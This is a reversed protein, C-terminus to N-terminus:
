LHTLLECLSDVTAHDAGEGQLRRTLFLLVGMRIGREVSTDAAFARLYPEYVHGYGTRLLRARQLVPLRNFAPVGLESPLKSLLYDMRLEHLDDSLCSFNLMLRELLQILAADSAITRLPAHNCLQLLLQVSLEGGLVPVAQLARVIEAVMQPDVEDPEENLFDARWSILRDITGRLEAAYLGMFDRLRQQLADDFEDFASALGGLVFLRVEPAATPLHQLLLALSPQDPPIPDLDVDGLDMVCTNMSPEHQMLRLELEKLPLHALALAQASRPHRAAEFLRALPEAGQPGLYVIALTVADLWDSGIQARLPGPIYLGGPVTQAALSLPRRMLHKCAAQWDSAQWLAHAQLCWRVVRMLPALGCAAYRHSLMFRLLVGHFVRTHRARDDVVGLHGLQWAIGHFVELPLSQFGPPIRRPPQLARLALSVGFHDLREENLQGGQTRRHHDLLVTYVLEAVGLSQENAQDILVRYLDPHEHDSAQDLRAEIALLQGKPDGSHTLLLERIAQPDLAPGPGSDTRTRKPPPSDPRGGAPRKHGSVQHPLSNRHAM